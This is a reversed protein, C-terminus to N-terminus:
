PPFRRGLRIALDLATKRWGSLLSRRYADAARRVGESMTPYPHVLSSLTGLKTGTRMALAIEAIMTGAIPGLIHGGLIKGGRGTVIKVCGVASREAIARDLGALDYVHASVADGHRERAEQETLGVRALEPETYTCWPIVDYRIKARVPLLANQVITRAEHDAVHTFLYGGTVDGGAFIHRQSTRLKDDVQVWGRSTGVGAQELGLDETNPRRGTAVLVEDVELTAAGAEPASDRPAYDLRRGAPTREVRRM